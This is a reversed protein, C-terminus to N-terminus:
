QIKTRTGKINVTIELTTFIRLKHPQGEVISSQSTLDQSPDSLLFIQYDRIESGEPIISYENDSDAPILLNNYDFEIDLKSTNDAIEQLIENTEGGGSNDISTYFTKFSEKTFPAGDKDVLSNISVKGLNYGVLHYFVYHDDEIPKVFVINVLGSAIENGSVLDELIIYSGQKYIKIM